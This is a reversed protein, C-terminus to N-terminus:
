ELGFNNQCIFICEHPFTSIIDIFYESNSIIIQVSYQIQMQMQVLSRIQQNAGGAIYQFLFRIQIMLIPITSMNHLDCVANEGFWFNNNNM